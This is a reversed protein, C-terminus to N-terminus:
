RKKLEYGYKRALQLLNGYEMSNPLHQLELFRNHEFEDVVPRSMDDLVEQLENICDKLGCFSAVVPPAYENEAWTVSGSNDAYIKLELYLDGGDDNRLDEIEEMLEYIRKLKKM